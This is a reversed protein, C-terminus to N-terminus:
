CRGSSAWSRGSTAFGCSRRSWTRSSQGSGPFSRATRCAAAEALREAPPARRLPFRISRPPDQLEHLCGHKSDEWGSTRCAGASDSGLGLRPPMKRGLRLQPLDVALYASTHPITPWQTAVSGAFRRQEDIATRRANGDPRRDARGPPSEPRQEPRQPLAVAVREALPDRTRRLQRLRPDPDSRGPWAHAPHRAPRRRQQRDPQLGPRGVPRVGRLRHPRDRDGHDPPLGAGSADAHLSVCRRRLRLVQGALRGARGVVDGHGVDPLLRRRDRLRGPSRSSRVQAGISAPIAWGMSQNDAPTFFRRPGQVEVAEAAWHTSATVDVFILEDPGLACRLQSLFFMPDVCKPIQVTRALCRDVQRLKHIKAWLPPSPPRRIAQGDALLRDLFVRSDTCLCLHAPVNRGLNQPNADVHILMDHHPIAYNATSVESYRVGIALM